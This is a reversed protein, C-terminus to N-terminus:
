FYYKINVLWSNSNYNSCIEQEYSFKVGVDKLISSTLNVGLRVGFDDAASENTFQSAPNASFYSNTQAEVILTHQVLM